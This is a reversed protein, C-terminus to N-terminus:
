CRPPPFRPGSAAASSRCWSRTSSVCRRAPCARCATLWFLQNTSYQFGIAPLNVVVVSWVMWVAFALALAPISIWLNRNATRAAAAWFTPKRAGVHQDYIQEHFEGLFVFTPRLGQAACCAGCAPRFSYHMWVLSVCVTGYLLMFASSRVGTLDLLAGFMIPLIFGGLGGALGVVGSVAGINDSFDDAIFKFVSAKGIAMATGVIFLLGHVRYAVPGSRPTRAARPRIVMSTQPYSLLFFCVWCVWM